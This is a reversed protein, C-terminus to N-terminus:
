QAPQPLLKQGVMWEECRSTWTSHPEPGATVGFGHAGLSYIHLEAAVKARKLAVYLSTCNESDVRDTEADVIFMQPTNATVPFNASLEETGKTLLGGPYVVIEFDPRASLQDVRDVPPYTPDSFHTGLAVGLQAGASFGMFGVHDAKIGWAAAQDRVVRVARQADPLSVAFEPPNPGAPIRYKLVLATVGIRNLWLAGKEGEKDSELERFGGGPAVIVVTGNAKAPDAPFLTLTPQSVNKIQHPLVAGKSVPSDAEMGTATTLGPPVGPWLDIVKPAEGVVKTALICASSCCLFLLRRFPPM